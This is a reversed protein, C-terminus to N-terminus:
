IWFRCGQRWTALEVVGAVIDEDAGHLVATWFSARSGFGSEALQGGGFFLDSLGSFLRARSSCRYRGRGAYRAEGSRAV